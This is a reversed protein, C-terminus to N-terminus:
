GFAEDGSSDGAAWDGGCMDYHKYLLLRLATFVDKAWASTTYGANPMGAWQATAAVQFSGQKRQYTVSVKYGEGIFDELTREFDEADMEVAKFAEKQHATMPIDVFGQWTAKERNMRPHEQTYEINTHQVGMDLWHTIAQATAASHYWEPQRQALRRVQTAFSMFLFRGTRDEM